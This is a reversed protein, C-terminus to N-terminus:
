LNRYMDRVYVRPNDKLLNDVFDVFAPDFGGVPKFRDWWERNRDAGLIQTLAISYNRFTPPDLLGLQHQRWIFERFRLATILWNHLRISEEESLDEKFFSQNIEPFDILKYVETQAMHRLETRTQSHSLKNSHKVQIALYILSVVVAISAITESIASIADWNM